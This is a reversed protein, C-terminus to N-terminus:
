ETLEEWERQIRKCCLARGPDSRALTWETQVKVVAEHRVNDWIELVDKDFDVYDSTGFVLLANAVRAAVAKFRTETMGPMQAGLLLGAKVHAQKDALPQHTLRCQFHTNYVAEFVKTGIFAKTVASRLKRLHSIRKKPVPVQAPVPKGLLVCWACTLALASLVRQKISEYTPHTM